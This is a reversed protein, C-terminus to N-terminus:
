GVFMGGSIVRQNVNCTQFMGPKSCDTPQTTKQTPVAQQSQQTYGTSAFGTPQQQVFNKLQTMQQMVSALNQPSFNTLLKNSDALIKNAQQTAVSQQFKQTNLQQTYVPKAFTTTQQVIPQQVRAPQSTTVPTPQVVPAPQTVPVPRPQQFQQTYIPKAFKTTQQVIPQQARLPQSTTVPVPLATLKQKTSKVHDLLKDLHFKVQFNTTYKPLM